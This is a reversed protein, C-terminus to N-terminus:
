STVLSLVAEKEHIEPGRIYGRGFVGLFVLNAMKPGNRYKRPGGLPGKRVLFVVASSDTTNQKRRLQENETGNEQRNERSFCANRLGRRPTKSHGYRIKEGYRFKSETTNKTRSPGYPLGPLPIKHKKKTKKRRIEPIRPNRPETGPGCARLM